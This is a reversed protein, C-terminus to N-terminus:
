RVLGPTALTEALLAMYVDSTALGSQRARILESNARGVRARLEPDTAFRLIVEALGPADGPPALFPVGGEGLAERIGPVDTGVVPLGAAMPETAGRGLLESRSSFVALDPAGLFGSV